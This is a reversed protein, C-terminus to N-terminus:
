HSLACIENAASWRAASAVSGRVCQRRKVAITLYRSYHYGCPRAHNHARGCVPGARASALRLREARGLALVETCRRSQTDRSLCRDISVAARCGTHWRALRPGAQDLGSSRHVEEFLCTAGGTRALARDVVTDDDWADSCRSACLGRQDDRRASRPRAAGPAGQGIVRTSAPPRAQQDRRHTLYV